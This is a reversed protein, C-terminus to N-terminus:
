DKHADILLKLYDEARKKEELNLSKWMQFIADDLAQTGDDTITAPNKASHRLALREAESMAEADTMNTGRKLDIAALVLDTEGSESEWGMLYAPSVNFLDAMLEIKDSPINSIVGSEYKQITQRTTGVFKAVDDLTLNRKARIHKINESLGM